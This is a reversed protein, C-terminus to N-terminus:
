GGRELSTLSVLAGDDDVSILVDDGAYCAQNVAPSQKFDFRVFINSHISLSLINKGSFSFVNAEVDVYSIIGKYNQM